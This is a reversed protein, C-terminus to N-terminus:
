KSVLWTEFVRLDEASYERFEKAIPVSELVSLGHRRSDEHVLSWGTLEILKRYDNIRLRNQWQIENNFLAWSLSSFRLFNYDTISGDFTAYHDALDVFHSMVGDSSCLRKSALFLERISEKPIHELTNNSCILDFRQGEFDSETVDVIKAKVGMRSLLERAPTEKPLKLTMKLTHYNDNDFPLRVVRRDILDLYMQLTVRVNEINILDQRDVTLVNGVGLLALGVSNIPFWGTGIELSTKDKLDGEAFQSLHEAHLQSQNWKELFYPERLILTKTVNKQLVQNWKQPNPLQSMAGQLAAKLIWHPM